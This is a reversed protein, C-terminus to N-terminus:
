AGGQRWREAAPSDVPVLDKSGCSACVQKPMNRAMAFCVATAIWAVWAWFGVVLCLAAVFQLGARSSGAPVPQAEAHCQTCHMAPRADWEQNGRWVMLALVGFVVVVAILTDMQWDGKAQNQEKKEFVEFFHPKKERQTNVHMGM